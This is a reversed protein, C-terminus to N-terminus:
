PCRSVELYNLLAVIKESSDKLLGLATNCRTCLLGRIKGTAHDHDVALSFVKSTRPDVNVEPERCSACRGEQQALMRHFDEAPLRYSDQLHYQKGKLVRNKRQWEQIYEKNLEAYQKRKARHEPALMYQKHYHYKCMERAFYKSECGETSCGKQNVVGDGKLETQTIGDRLGARHM